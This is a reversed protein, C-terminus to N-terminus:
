LFIEQKTYSKRVKKKMMMGFFIRKRQFLLLLLRKWVVERYNQEKYNHLNPTSKNRLFFRDDEVIIHSKPNGDNLPCVGGVM